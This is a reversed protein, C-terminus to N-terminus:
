TVVPVTATSCGVPAFLALGVAFQGTGVPNASGPIDAQVPLEVPLAVPHTM